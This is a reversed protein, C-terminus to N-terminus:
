YLIISSDLQTYLGRFSNVQIDSQTDKDHFSSLSVSSQIGDKGRVGSGDGVTGHSSILHIPLLLGKTLPTWYSNKYFINFISTLFFYSKTIFFFVTM